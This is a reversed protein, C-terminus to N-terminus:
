FKYSLTGRIVNMNVDIDGNDDSGFDYSTKGLDVYLYELGLMINDNVMYNVGAGATWGVQTNSDSGIKDGELLLSADMGGIALGGTGYFLAEGAQIGVRARITGLWDLSADMSYDSGSIGLSSPDIDGNGQADMWSLDGAIGLVLGSEFQHDYGVLGGIMGGELDARGDESVLDSSSDAHDSLLRGQFDGKGSAYGGTIGLYAGNFSTQKTQARTDSVWGWGALVAAVTVGAILRLKLSM